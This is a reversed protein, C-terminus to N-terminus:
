DVTMDFVGASGSRALAADGGDLSTKPVLHSLRVPGESPLHQPSRLSAVRRELGEDRDNTWRLCSLPCPCGETEYTMPRLGIVLGDWRAAEDLM